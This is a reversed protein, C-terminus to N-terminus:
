RQAENRRWLMSWGGGFQQTINGRVATVFWMVIGIISSHLILWVQDYGLIWPALVLWVAILANVWRVGRTVEWIAIIAFTTAIPGVMYDNTQAPGSYGVIAPAAMLWIGLAANVFRAWM